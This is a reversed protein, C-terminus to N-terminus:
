SLVLAAGHHPLLDNWGVVYLGRHVFDWAGDVTGRGVALAANVPHGRLFAMQRVPNAEDATDVGFRAVVRWWLASTGAVVAFCVAPRKWRQWGQAGFEAAPVFM